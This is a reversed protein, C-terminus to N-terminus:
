RQGCCIPASQQRRAKPHNSQCNKMGTTMITFEDSFRENASDVKLLSFEVPIPSGEQDIMQFRHWGRNATLKNLYNKKFGPSIKHIKGGSILHWITSGELDNAQGGFVQAASDSCSVIKGTGDCVVVGASATQGCPTMTKRPFDEDVRM